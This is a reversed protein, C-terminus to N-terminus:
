HNVGWPYDFSDDVNVRKLCNSCVLVAVAKKTRGTYRGERYEQEKYWEPKLVGGCRPCEGYDRIRM